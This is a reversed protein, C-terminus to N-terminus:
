AVNKIMIKIKLISEGIIYSYILMRYNIIIIFRTNNTPMNSMSIDNIFQFSLANASIVYRHFIFVRTCLWCLNFLTFNKCSRLQSDKVIKKRIRLMAQSIASLSLFFSSFFYLGIQSLFLTEELMICSYLDALPSIFFLLFLFHVTILFKCLLFLRFKSINLIPLIIKSEMGLFYEFKFKFLIKIM